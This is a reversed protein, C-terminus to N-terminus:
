PLTVVVGPASVMADIIRGSSENRVRLRAGNDGGGLAIGEARVEIGDLRAVLQVHDGARVMRRGGMAAPTLVSGAVLPRALIRGTIQDLSEIYGYGLRTVDREVVRVDGARIGDGRGLSHTTVLVPRFLQLQLPVRVIWSGPQSCQVTVTMLAAPASREQVAARLPTPCDALKLRPNFARATVIVRNGPAAYHQQLTEVALQRVKDLSQVNAAMALSPVLLMAAFSALLIPVCRKPRTTIM